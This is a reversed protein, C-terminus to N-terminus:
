IMPFNEAAKAIPWNHRKQNGQSRGLRVTAGAREVAIPASPRQTPRARSMSTDLIAPRSHEFLWVSERAYAFITCGNACQFNFSQQRFEDQM